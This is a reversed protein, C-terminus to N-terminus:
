RELEYYDMIMIDAPVQEGIFFKRKVAKFKHPIQPLFDFQKEPVYAQIDFSNEVIVPIYTVGERVIKKRSGDMIVDVPLYKSITLGANKIFRKIGEFEIRKEKPIQYFLEILELKIGHLFFDEVPASDDNRIFSEFSPITAKGGSIFCDRITEIVKTRITVDSFDKKSVGKLFLSLYDRQKASMSSLTLIEGNERYDVIPNDNFCMVPVDIEDSSLARFISHLRKRPRVIEQSAYRDMLYRMESSSDKGKIFYWDCGADYANRLLHNTDDSTFVVIPTFIDKMRITRLMNLGTLQTDDVGYLNLFVIDFENELILRVAKESDTELIVDGVLGNLFPFWQGTEDYLFVSRDGM